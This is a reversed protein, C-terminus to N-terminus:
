RLQIQLALLQTLLPTMASNFLEGREKIDGSVNRALSFGTEEIMTSDIHSMTIARLSGAGDRMDDGRTAILGIVQGAENTIPGGSSGQQGVATGRISFVDATNSTFTYLETITTRATQPNLQNTNGSRLMAEAPYGTASISAGRTSQSLLNTRIQLAPFRAPLPSNDISETVYLLAYDREGTGVPAEEIINKAHATIWAPPLYLLDAIYRPAAPDGTRITCTTEGFVDTNQLLLYQAVHANTLIVGKEHVFFGTGTTTRITRATTSTCFINVLAEVPDTTYTSPELPALATARQYAQNRKLIDPITTIYSFSDARAIKEGGEETANPQYGVEWYTTEEVDHGLLVLIRDALANTFALYGMLIAIFFETIYQM